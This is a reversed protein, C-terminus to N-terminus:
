VCYIKLNSEKKDLQQVNKETCKVKRMFVISMKKMYQMWLQLTSMANLM